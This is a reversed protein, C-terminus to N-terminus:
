TRWRPFSSGNWYNWPHCEAKNCISNHLAEMLYLSLSLSFQTPHDKVVMGSHLDITYLQIGSGYENLRSLYAADHFSSVSCNNPYARKNPQLQFQLVFYKHCFWCSFGIWSFPKTTRYFTKMTFAIFQILSYFLHVVLKAQIRLCISIRFYFKEESDPYKWAIWSFTKRWGKGEKYVTFREIHKDEDFSYM